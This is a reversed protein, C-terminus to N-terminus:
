YLRKGLAVGKITVDPWVRLKILQFADNEKLALKNSYFAAQVDLCIVTWKDSEVIVPIDISNLHVRSADFVNGIRLSKILNQTDRFDLEM